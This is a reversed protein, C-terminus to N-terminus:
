FRTLQDAFTNKERPVHEFTITEFNSALSQAKDWLKKLKENKVKYEKNMQKIVLQSDGKVTLHYIGQWLAEELLKILGSYEAINNTGHGLKKNGKSIWQNTNLDIIVYGCQMKGPNPIASGDFYGDYFKSM